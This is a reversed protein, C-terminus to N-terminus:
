LIPGSSKVKLLYSFSGTFVRYAFRSSERSVKKRKKKKLHSLEKGLCTAGM